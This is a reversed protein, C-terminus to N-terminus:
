ELKKLAEYLTGTLALALAGIGMLITPHAEFLPVRDAWMDFGHFLAAGSFALMFAFLLPYRRLVPKTYNGARDHIDKVM